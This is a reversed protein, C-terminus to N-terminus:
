LIPEMDEDSDHMVTSDIRPKMPLLNGLFELSWVYKM